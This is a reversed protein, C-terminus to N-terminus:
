EKEIELLKNYKNRLRLIKNIKSKGIGKISALEELDAYIINYICGFHEILLEIDKKNLKNVTSLIRYGKTEVIDEYNIDKTNYGITNLLKDDKTLDELNINPLINIIEEINSKLSYDKLFNKLNMNQNLMIEHHQLQILRGEIGLELIYQNVEDDMKTLLVFYRLGNIIDELTVENEIELLNLSSLYKNVLSSYKELSMISQSAKMLLDATRHISYKYDNKFVTIKNRRESITIVLKGIQKAIRDATRHRTGSEATYIDTNPQLQMNAAHIIKLDESIIISGDMKSLEYVKQPSFNTNLLFGGEAINEIAEYDTLVILAGLEAEQIRDIAMRLPAGPALIKFIKELINKEKNINM